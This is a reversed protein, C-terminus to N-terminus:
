PELNYIRLFNGQLITNYQLLPFFAPGGIPRGDWDFLSSCCTDVMYQGSPHVDVTACADYPNFSCNQEFARYTNGSKHLIIGRVGETRLHVYGFTNLNAFQPNSLNIEIDVPVYPIPEQILQPECSLFALLIFLLSYRYMIM